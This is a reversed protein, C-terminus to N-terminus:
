GTVDAVAAIFQDINGMTLGAINIRGSGAFYIGHEARMAEYVKRVDISDRRDLSAKLADLAPRWQEHRGILDGLLALAGAQADPTAAHQYAAYAATAGQTVLEYRGNAQADDAKIAVNAFALWNM